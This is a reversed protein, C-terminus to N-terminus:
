VVLPLRDRVTAGGVATTHHHQHRLCADSGRLMGDAQEDTTVGPRQGTDRETRRVRKRLTEATCGIQSAMSTIAGGSRNTNWGIRRFWGM